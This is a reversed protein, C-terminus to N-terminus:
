SRSGRPRLTVGKYSVLIILLFNRRIGREPEAGGEQQRPGCVVASFIM